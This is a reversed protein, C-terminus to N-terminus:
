SQIKFTTSKKDEYFSHSHTSGCAGECLAADVKYTGPEFPQEQNPDAQFEFKATYLGPKTSVLL